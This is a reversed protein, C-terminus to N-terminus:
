KTHLIPNPEESISLGLTSRTRLETMGEKIARCLALNPEECTLKRTTTGRAHAKFFSFIYM